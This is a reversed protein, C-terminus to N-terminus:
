SGGGGDISNTITEAEDPCRVAALSSQMQETLM